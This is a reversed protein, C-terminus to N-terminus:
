SAMKRTEAATMERVMASIVNIGYPKPMFVTDSPLEEPRVISGGSTIIVPVKMDSSSIMRALDLGSLGGPMDVDTIVADIKRRGLVAVAELVNGAEIVDYGEDALTDALVIRILLEDEVILVTRKYM